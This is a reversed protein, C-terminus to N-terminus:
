IGPEAQIATKAARTRGPDKVLVLGMILSFWAHIRLPRRPPLVAADRTDEEDGDNITPYNLGPRFRSGYGKGREYDLGNGV